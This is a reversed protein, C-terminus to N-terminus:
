CEEHIEHANQYSQQSETPIVSPIIITNSTNQVM